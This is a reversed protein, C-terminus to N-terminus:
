VAEKRRSISILGLLGSCFLWVAPPVPIQSIEIGYLGLKTSPLASSFEDAFGFFSVNYTGATAEFIFSGPALLMGLTSTASTVDMGTEVMPAPFEFDTLIAQYVGAEFIEFEETFVKQTEFLEVKDYVISAWSNGTTILLVGITMVAIRFAQKM